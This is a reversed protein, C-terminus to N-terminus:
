KRSQTKSKIYQRINHIPDVPVEIEEVTIVQVPECVELEVPVLDVSVPECVQLEIPAPEVSVSECVELEIPELDVSVLEVSVPECVELKVPSPDEKNDNIVVLNEELSLQNTSQINDYAYENYIYHEELDYM